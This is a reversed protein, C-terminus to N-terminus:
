IGDEALLLLPQQSHPIDAISIVLFLVDFLTMDLNLDCDEGSISIELSRIM